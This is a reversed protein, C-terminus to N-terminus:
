QRLMNKDNVYYLIIHKGTYLVICMVRGVVDTTKKDTYVLLSLQIM